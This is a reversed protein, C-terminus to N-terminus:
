GAPEPAAAGQGRHQRDIEVPDLGGRAGIAGRDDRIDQEDDTGVADAGVVLGAGLEFREAQGEAVLQDFLILRDLIGVQRVEGLPGLARCEAVVQGAAARVPQLFPDDAIYHICVAIAGATLVAGGVMVSRLRRQPLLRALVAGIAPPPGPLSTYPALVYLMAPLVTFAALWTLAMGCGAIAGFERFGRFDTIILSVYAIFATAM